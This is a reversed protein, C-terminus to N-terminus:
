VPTAGVSFVALARARDEPCAFRVIVVKGLAHSCWDSRCHETLWETLFTIPTYGQPAGVPRAFVAEHFPEGRNSLEAFRVRPM